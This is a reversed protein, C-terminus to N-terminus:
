RSPNRGTELVQYRDAIERLKLGAPTGGLIENVGVCTALMAKCAWDWTQAIEGEKPAPEFDLVREDNALQVLHRNLSDFSPHAADASLQSYIFYGHHMVADLAAEQANLPQPKPYKKTMERMQGRLKKMDVEPLEMHKFILEGRKQRSKVEAHLMKKAFKDRKKNLGVVWFANEYCSRVLIRAEVV